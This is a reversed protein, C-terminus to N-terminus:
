GFDGGIGCQVSAVGSVLINRHCELILAYVEDQKVGEERFILKENAGVGSGEDFVVEDGDDLLAVAVAAERAFENARHTVEAEEPCCEFAVATGTEVIYLVAQEGLFELTSVGAQAAKDAYLGCEDHVGDVGEAGVLM